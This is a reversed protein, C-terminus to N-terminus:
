PGSVVARPSQAIRACESAMSTQPAVVLTLPQAFGQPPPAGIVLGNMISGVASDIAGDGTTGLLRARAVAGSADIWFNLAIRYDGAQTRSDGCFAKILSAQVRGYYEIATASVAPSPRRVEQAGVEETLVFADAAMYRAVLGTDRLLLALAENPNFRGEVASSRRGQALNANYVVDRGTLAIYMDLASTLPQPKIDFSLPREAAGDTASGAAFEARAPGAAILVLFALLLIYSALVRRDRVTMPAEPQL